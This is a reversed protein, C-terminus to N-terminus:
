RGLAGAFDERTIQGSALSGDSRPVEIPLGDREFLVQGIGPLATLTYVLQALALQQEGAPLTQEFDLTLAVRAFGGTPVVSAVHEARLVTRLATPRDTPLSGAGLDGIVLAATPPSPAFRTVEVLKGDRVFFLTRPYLPAATTTTTAVTIPISPPSTTTALSTTTTTPPLTSSANLEFPVDEERVERFSEDSGVGCGALAVLAALGALAGRGRRM